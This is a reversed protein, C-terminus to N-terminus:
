RLGVNEDNMLDWLKDRIKEVLEQEKENYEKGDVAGYKTISRLHQDLDWLISQYKPGNIALEWAEKDEFMDFKLIIESMIGKM